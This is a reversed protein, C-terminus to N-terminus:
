PPNLEIGNQIKLLIAGILVEFTGSNPWWLGDNKLLNQKKLIELLEYSNNIKM